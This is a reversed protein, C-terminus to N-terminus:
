EIPRGTVAALERVMRDSVQGTVPLKREKEFKSIAAQTDTGAVGTPKLQGYGFETLARQVAAIRRQSAMAGAAPDAKTAAPIPAPPRTVPAAAPAPSPAATRAVLQGMPDNTRPEPQSQPKAEVARVEAPKADAELPRAKPLPNVPVSAAAPAPFAVPAARGFMPSPHRGAQMFLANGIIATAMAAAVLIAVADKPNNLLPRILFAMVGRGEDEEFRSRAAEAKAKPKPM